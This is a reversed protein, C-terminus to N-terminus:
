PAVVPAPAGPAVVVSRPNLLEFHPLDIFSEDSVETDMDWDAGTRIMIGMSEAVSKVYGAFFYLRSKDNYRIHAGSGYYPVVDVALAPMYNHNSRKTVGDLYTVVELPNTIIWVGDILTRGKKYLEFQEARSRYGYLVM